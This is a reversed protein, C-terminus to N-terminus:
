RNSSLADRQAHRELALDILRTVLAPVPMGAAEWLKPYMSIPTFGPLTNLENVLIEGAPTLFFDVRALGACELVEYARVAMARMREAAEAPIDAPVVVDAGSDDLYKTEYSYFGRRVVIEGCGSAEPADNGLVACEIERGTVAAEVLVKRDYRLALEIATDYSAADTVKSVGVSSGANAPKVFLPLGLRRVADDFGHEARNRATVCLFPTVPLGADRLLRKSVDKDMCIASGLVDSGVFPLGAMRLLGQLTGDEGLTGHIIPFLVDIRALPSAAVESLSQTPHGPLVAVERGSAHLAIRAPDQPNVLYDAADNLHWRGQKDVGILVPEFRTRDLADVICRASRLSVEHEASRGGFIIGVRLTNM